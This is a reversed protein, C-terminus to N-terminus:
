PRAFFEGRRFAVMGWGFMVEARQSVNNEGSGFQGWLRAYEQDAQALQGSGILLGCLMMRAYQSRPHTPGLKSETLAIVEKQRALAKPTDLTSRLAEVEAEHLSLRLGLPADDPLLSKAREVAALGERQRGLQMLAVALNSELESQLRPSSWHPSDRYPALLDLISQAQSKALLAQCRLDLERRDLPRRCGIIRFRWTIWGRWRRM